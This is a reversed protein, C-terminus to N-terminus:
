FALFEGNLPVSVIKMNWVSFQKNKTAHGKLSSIKQRAIILKLVILFKAKKISFFDNISFVTEGVIIRLVVVTEKIRVVRVHQGDLWAVM